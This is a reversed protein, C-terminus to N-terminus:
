SLTSVKLPEAGREPVIAATLRTLAQPVVIIPRPLLYCTHYAHKLRYASRDETKEKAGDTRIKECNAITIMTSEHVVHALDRSHRSIHEGAHGHLATALVPKGCHECGVLPASPYLPGLGSNYSTGEGGFVDADAALLLTTPPSPLEAVPIEACIRM